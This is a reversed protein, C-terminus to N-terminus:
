KGKHIVSTLSISKEASVTHRVYRPRVWQSFLILFSLYSKPDVNILMIYMTYLLIVAPGVAATGM